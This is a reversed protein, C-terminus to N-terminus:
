KDLGGTVFILLQHKYNLMLSLSNPEPLHRKNWWHPAGDPMDLYNCSLGKERDRALNRM